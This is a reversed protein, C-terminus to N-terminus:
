YKLLNNSITEVLEPNLIIYDSLFFPKIQGTLLGKKRNHLDKCALGIGSYGSFRRMKIM